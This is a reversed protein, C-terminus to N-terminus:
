KRAPDFGPPKILMNHVQAGDAAKFWFHEPAQWDISAARETNLATLRKPAAGFRYVEPPNVSSEWIGVLAKGGASLGNISGSAASPEDRLGSGNYNISHLQELGAHEYTFYVRKAGDPLAFRSISRDLGATLIQPEPHNLPWAFSALRELDYVKGATEAQTLCFLTKGDPSFKLDGYSHTDRTLQQAEGGGAAVMYLQTYGSQRAAEHRNTSAAFVIHQGDPAWVASLSQGGDGQSGGFGPQAVLKSGALLDRVPAGSRAEMVFLRVQKDDLWKDFYRPPFSEYARATYKRDKREKASKKVDEEGANGPFIDSVFLLQKGDPSWKPQRAGLTLTTLREAEGGGAVDLRYIQGVDDGDRKAVFALQRSDPSWAVASESGKSFTLRRAPSDDDLAKIWLDSWQEKSDYAPDTVAFVAWKGDPSAQPTGVRKMLWVDEHTIPHRAPAAPDAHVPACTLALLLSALPLTHRIPTM